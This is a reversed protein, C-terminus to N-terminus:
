ESLGVKYNKKLWSKLKRYNMPRCFYYGQLYDVGLLVSCDGSEKTEVGEAVTHMGISKTMAILSKVINRNTENKDIDHIFMRDIKISDMHIKSFSGISTNGTGFDDISLLIGLARLDNINQIVEKYTTLLGRETIEFVFHKGTVAHKKLIQEVNFCFDEQLLNTPSINLAMLIPFGASRIELIRQANLELAWYTLENVLNTSELYDIYEYPSIMGYEPHHWRILAEVAIPKKDVCDLVPQYYFDMNGAKIAADIQSILHIVPLPREGRSSMIMMPKRRTKAEGMALLANQVLEKSSRGDTPFTSIGVVVDCFIPIEQVVIPKKFFDVTKKAYERIDADCGIALLDLRISFLPCTLNLVKRLEGALHKILDSFFEFGFAAVIDNQNKIEIFMLSYSELHKIREDTIRFFSNRNPLGIFPDVTLFEERKNYFDIMFERFVGVLGGMFCLFGMRILWNRPSQQIKYAVDLPMFPGLIMAGIFGVLIGIKTGYIFGSVIVPIFMFYPYVLTTGGTQYVVYGVLAETAVILLFAVVSKQNLKFSSKNFIWQM